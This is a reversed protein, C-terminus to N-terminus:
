SAGRVEALLKELDSPEVPKVLHQDFGAEASRRRDSDQGWGTLAVVLATRSEPQQRLRRAVEYGDMGPMGLDLLVLEPRFAQAALLATPGDHAVRVEQGSLRLLLALSDAADMNDDVVLVRRCPLPPPVASRSRAAAQGEARPDDAAPLRVVFESGRGPGASSAEVRGGHMEVLKKVLTLGIGVGGQSRDLRREAQVFLDFVKPLMDPAIGIGTDRVRLVVESGAHQATVWVKGGPDTYKAANNLLNTVVQELRTPDAEVRLSAPPLSVILEHQREEFLPRVAEASRNVAATLDLVEKRLEIKGRSIRSVDLLDDLLRAMHQVQREAMDRAQGIMASNTGPMKMIQLANRVPALPNRLEHALMALFEDKLRDAEKLEAYLRANDLAVAARHALDEALKLDAPGYRRGSESTVFTVVGLPRGRVALPVCLYSRLALERLIRLHEDDQALAALVSDGLETAMEPQGTRLVNPPGYPDDPRPPYRRYLEEALEVKSPDVHAVALRRLAGGPEAMDVACWDAFFPVALRAVKGLTSEYDVVAALAASANALFRSADEARKQESIDTNTGFWYLVRGAEDRLPNVRTLFPRFLNDAGKLPFVMDFPEGSALSAKWRELVKPLVDPDHVSQWGWGEMQEPTTGTYEYWRRNYWFIHGDPRAMWALQPITDALLRLKAESERLGAEARRKETVDRFILVVGNLGSSADRIPAASDDIPRETGDRAILLTHNALGVVTGEQLVRAVPHEVPRRTQENVIVFVEELPRGEAARLDWGTLAEAVPNLFTIRGRTDTAIVADGISSLTVRLWERQQRMAEEARRRESVDRAIVSVALLRGVEDRVPALTVEVELSSGDARRLRVDRRVEPEGASVARVLRGVVGGDTDPELLSVPRGVADAEAHGFLGAAARNWTLISGGPDTSLIADQAHALISALFRDSVALRRYDPSDVPPRSTVQVKVRDLTTRLQRRQQTSRTAEQLSRTLAAPEPGAFSWHTGIRPAPGMERRLEAARAADALFVMQVQPDLRYVRRAAMVANPLAPGLVVAAPGDGSAAAEQLCVALAEGGACFRVRLGLAGAVETVGAAAAGGEDDAVLVMEGAM